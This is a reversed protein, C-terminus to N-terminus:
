SDLELLWTATEVHHQLSGGDLSWAVTQALSWLRARERDLGLEGSLRDLRHRVHQRGHGLESSRVIPALGFEREGALPKPDIVLWPERDARLVNGAHLDQHLLVQEGQTAPLTRLADLTGDLLRRSFPRGHREWTAPLYGAWWAAEEGLPRFPASAPKWLRPLAAVLVDLATDLDLASLRTGPLCRELLLAHRGADHALLRIAADGDWRALAAAEHESERDPFQIKLVVHSGDPLTAAIPFSVYADAFPTGLTLGWREVCDAVLRPLADLWARGRASRRVWDLGRPVELSGRV